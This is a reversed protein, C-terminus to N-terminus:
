HMDIDLIILSCILEDAGKASLRNWIVRNKAGQRTLRIHQRMLKGVEVGKESAPPQVL